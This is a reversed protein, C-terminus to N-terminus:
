VSKKHKRKMNFSSLLPLLFDLTMSLVFYKHCQFLVKVSCLRKRVRDLNLVAIDNEFTRGDYEPHRVAATVDRVSGFGEANVISGGRVYYSM